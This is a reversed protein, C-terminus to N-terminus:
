KTHTRRKWQEERMRWESRAHHDGLNGNEDALSLVLRYAVEEWTEDELVPAEARRGDRVEIIAYKVADPHPKGDLIELITRERRNSLQEIRKEIRKVAAEVRDLRAADHNTWYRRDM